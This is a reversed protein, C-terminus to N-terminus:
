WLIKVKNLSRLINTKCFKSYYTRQQTNVILQHEQQVKGMHRSTHKTSGKQDVAIPSQHSKKAERRLFVLAKQWNRSSKNGFIDTILEALFNISLLKFLHNITITTKSQTCQWQNANQM